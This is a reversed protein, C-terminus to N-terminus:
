AYVIKKTRNVLQIEIGTDLAAVVAGIADIVELLNYSYPGLTLPIINARRRREKNTLPALFLYMGILARYMNRYLSFADIYFYLPM